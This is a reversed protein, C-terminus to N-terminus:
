RTLRNEISIDRMASRIRKRLSPNNETLDDAKQFHFRAKSMQHIKTFYLGFNYHALALKNLRGYCIGLNYFIEDKASRRSALKEYLRIARRYEKLNQYSLAMIFIAPSDQDASQLADELISIVEQDRGMM